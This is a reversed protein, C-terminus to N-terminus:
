NNEEHQCIFFGNLNPNTGWVQYDGTLVVNPSGTESFKNDIININGLVEGDNNVLNAGQMKMGVYWLRSDSVLEGNLVDNLFKRSHKHLLQMPVVYFVM